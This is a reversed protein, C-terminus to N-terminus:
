PLLWRVLYMSIFAAIPVAINDNRNTAAGALMGFFSGLIAILDAYFWGAVSAGLFGSLTGEWSKNVNFSFRHKGYRKGIVGAFGDGAALIAIAAYCIREDIFWSLVLLSLISLFYSCPEISFRNLENERYLLLLIKKSFRPKYTEVILFASFGLFVFLIMVEKGFTEAVAPIVVGSFHVAKRLQM